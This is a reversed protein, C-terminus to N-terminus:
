ERGVRPRARSRTFNIGLMAHEHVDSDRAREVAIVYYRHGTSRVGRLICCTRGRAKRRSIKQYGDEARAGRRAHIGSVEEVVHRGVRPEYVVLPPISRVITGAVFSVDGVRLHRATAAESGPLVM